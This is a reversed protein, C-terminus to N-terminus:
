INIHVEATIDYEYDLIVPSITPDFYVILTEALLDRPFLLLAPNVMTYRVMVSLDNPSRSYQMIEAGRDQSDIIQLTSGGPTQRQEIAIISAGYQLPMMLSYLGNDGYLYPGLEEADIYLKTLVVTADEYAIDSAGVPRIDGYHYRDRREQLIVTYVATNFTATDIIEGDLMRKIDFRINGIATSPKTIEVAITSIKKLRYLIDDFERFEQLHLETNSVIDTEFGKAEIAPPQLYLGTPSRFLTGYNTIRDELPNDVLPVDFLDPIGMFQQTEYIKYPAQEITSESDEADSTDEEVAHISFIRREKVHSTRLTGEAFDADNMAVTEDFEAVGVWLGSLDESAEASPYNELSFIDNSDALANDGSSDSSSSCANLAFIVLLLLSLRFSCSCRYNFLPYPM